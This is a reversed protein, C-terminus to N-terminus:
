QKLLLINSTLCFLQQQIKMLKQRSYISLLRKSYKKNLADKKKSRKVPKVVNIAFKM